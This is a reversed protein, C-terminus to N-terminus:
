ALAAIFGDALTTGPLPYRHAAYLTKCLDIGKLPLAVLLEARVEDTVSSAMVISIGIGARVARKVAETSGLQHHIGLTRGRRM